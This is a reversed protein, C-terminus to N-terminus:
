KNRFGYFKGVTKVSTKEDKDTLKLRRMIINDIM